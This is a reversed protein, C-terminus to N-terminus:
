GATRRVTIILPTWGQLAVVARAALRNLRLRRALDVLRGVAGLGMWQGIAATDMREIFKDQGLTLVTHPYTPGLAALTRRVWPPNIETRITAAFAPDARYIWRVWWRFFGNSPIPPHFAVYHGDFYSLYNPCVIQMVGGPRLVRLAEALVRAPDATHELVNSSYVIDFHADPFPLAEGPADIIRAPDLGNAAILGRAVGASEAFGEGEPEVGWGDIDFRRRWVIHTVGCGAGIELVRRGNLPAYADLVAAQELAKRPDLTDAAFKNPDIRMLPAFYRGQGDRVRAFAEPTITCEPTSLRALDIAPM